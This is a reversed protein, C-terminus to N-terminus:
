LSINVHNKVPPASPTVAVLVTEPRIPSLASPVGQGATPRPFLVVYPPTDPPNEDKRANQKMLCQQFDLCPPPCALADQTKHDSIRIYSM